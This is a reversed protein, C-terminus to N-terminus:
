TRGLHPHGGHAPVRPLDGVRVRGRTGRPAQPGGVGIPTLLHQYGLDNEMAAVLQPIDSRKVLGRQEVIFEQEDWGYFGDISSTGTADARDFRAADAAKEGATFRLYDALGERTGIAGPADVITSWNVYLDTDRDIKVIYHPM